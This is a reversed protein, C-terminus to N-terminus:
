EDAKINNERVVAGWIRAQESAFDRLEVPSSLVLSRRSLTAM